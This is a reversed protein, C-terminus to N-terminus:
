LFNLKTKTDLILCERACDPWNEKETMIVQYFGRWYQWVGLYCFYTGEPKYSFDYGEQCFPNCYKSEGAPFCAVAGNKPEKRKECSPVIHLFLSNVDAILYIM